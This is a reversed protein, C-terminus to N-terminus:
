IIGEERWKKEIEEKSKGCNPCSKTLIVIEEKTRHWSTSRGARCAARKASLVSPRILIEIIGKDCFPCSWYDRQLM